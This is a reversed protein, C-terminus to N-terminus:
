RRLVPRVNDWAYGMRHLEPRAAVKACRLICCLAADRRGCSGARAPIDGGAYVYTTVRLVVVMASVKAGLMNGIGMQRDVVRFPARLERLFLRVDKPLPGIAGSAVDVPSM